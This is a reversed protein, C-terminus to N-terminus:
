RFLKYIKYATLVPILILSAVLGTFGIFLSYSIEGVQKGSEVCSNKYYKDFDGYVAKVGFYFVVLNAIIYFIFWFM